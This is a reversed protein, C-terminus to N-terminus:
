SAARASSTPHRPKKTQSWTLQRAGIVDTASGHIVRAAIAVAVSDSVKPGMTVGRARRRGTLTARSVAVSSRSLPPRSTSPGAEPIVAEAILEALGAIFEVSSHAGLHEVLRQSDEWRRPTSLRDAVAAPVVGDVVDGEKWSWNLRGDGNPNRTEGAVRRGQTTRCAKVTVEGDVEFRGFLDCVRHAHEVGKAFVARRCFGEVDDHRARAGVDCGICIRARRPPEGVEVWFRQCDTANTGDNVIARRASLMILKV